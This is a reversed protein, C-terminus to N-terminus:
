GENLPVIDGWRLIDERDACANFGALRFVGHEM